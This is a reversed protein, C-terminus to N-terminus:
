VGMLVGWRDTTLGERGAKQNVGGGPEESVILQSTNFNINRIQVLPLVLHEALSSGTLSEEVSHRPLHM